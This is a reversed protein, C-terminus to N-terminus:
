SVPEWGPTRSFYCPTRFINKKFKHYEFKRSLQEYTTRSNKNQPVYTLFTPFRQDLFNLYQVESYDKEFTQRTVIVLGISWRDCSLVSRCHM